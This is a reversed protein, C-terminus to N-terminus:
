LDLSHTYELSGTSGDLYTSEREDHLDANRLGQGCTLNSSQLQKLRELGQLMLMSSITTNCYNCQSVHKTAIGFIIADASFFRQISVEPLLQEIVVPLMLEKKAIAFIILFGHTKNAALADSLHLLVIHFSM